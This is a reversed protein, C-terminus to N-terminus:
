GQRTEIFLEFSPEGGLAFGVVPQADLATLQGTSDALLPPRAFLHSRGLSLFLVGDAYVHGLLHDAVVFPSQAGRALRPGLRLPLTVLPHCV